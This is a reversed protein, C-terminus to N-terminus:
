QSAEHHLYRKKLDKFLKMFKQISSPNYDAAMNKRTIYLRTYLYAWERYFKELPLRTSLVMHTLDFLELNTTTLQDTLTDYLDIGPLPTLLYFMVFEAELSRAYDALSDFDEIDYDPSIVFSAVTKIGMKDLISIAKKNNGITSKKGFYELDKPRNSEVGILIRSLGAERWKEFLDPHKLVTDSRAQCYISKKIGSDIILDALRDARETDIFTEDDAFDVFSEKVTKLEEVVAQPDRTLYRGGTVKWNSCFRCRHPCGRSTQFIALPKSPGGPLEAFYDQRYQETLSRNPFPFSDLDPFDRPATFKLEGNHSFAIGKVDTVAQGKEIRAAIERFTFVGEGIAIVDIHPDCFDRPLLTAHHGGVVILTEPNFTKIKQCLEKTIYVQPTYSTLGVVDPAYEELHKDLSPDLRMDLIRVDYKDSVGAAVYELELPETLSLADGPLTKESTPPKILLIKM